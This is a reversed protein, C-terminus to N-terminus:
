NFSFWYGYSFGFLQMAYTLAVPNMVLEYTVNKIIIYMAVKNNPRLHLMIM